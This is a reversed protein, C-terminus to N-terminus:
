NAIPLHTVNASKDSVLVPRRDAPDIAQVMADHDSFIHEIERRKLLLIKAIGPALSEGEGMRGLLAAIDSITAEEPTKFYHGRGDFYGINRVAM